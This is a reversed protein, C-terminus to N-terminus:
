SFLRGQILPRIEQVPLGVMQKFRNCTAPSFGSYDNNMFVYVDRVDPLLPQINAAWRQLDSTKDVLEKDKTGFQGHPGIFRLYLFDSTRHIVQPMYIYDAAALCIHHQELLVATGPTDWSRHRFEVAFRKDAPLERLFIMLDNFHNHTFEPGFQLLIVGLKDGLLGAVDLFERMRTIGETLPADHTIARPTKLCFTFHPPTVAGWRQVQEPRPQGYFTSDIEVSDFYQSYEALFHRAPMGAPYFPGAWGEYAFGMTGIHWDTMGGTYRM